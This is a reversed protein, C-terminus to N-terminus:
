PESEDKNGDTKKYPLPLFLKTGIVNWDVAILLSKPKRVIYRVPPCLLNTKIRDHLDGLYSIAAQRVRGLCGM